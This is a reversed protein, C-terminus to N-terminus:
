TMTPSARRTAIVLDSNNFDLWDSDYGGQGTLRYVFPTTDHRSQWPDHDWPLRRVNNLAAVIPEWKGEGRGFLRVREVAQGISGIMETTTNMGIDQHGIM